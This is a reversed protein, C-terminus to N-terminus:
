IPQKDDVETLKKGPGKCGQSQRIKSRQDIQQSIRIYHHLVETRAHDFSLPKATVRNFMDIWCYDVARDRAVAILPWPCVKRALIQQSLCM